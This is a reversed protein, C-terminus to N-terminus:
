NQDEAYITKGLRVFEDLAGCSQWWHRLIEKGEFFHINRTQKLYDRAQGPHIIGSTDILLLDLSAAARHLHPQTAGWPTYWIAPRPLNHVIFWGLCAELHKIVEFYPLKGYDIHKLGHIQPEMRGEATELKIYEIAEPFDQIETCLIAPVHIFHEQDQLVLKHFGVFRGMPNPWQSSPLLVDDDRIRIKKFM